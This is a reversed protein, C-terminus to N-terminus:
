RMPSRRLLAVRMGGDADGKRSFVFLDHGGNERIFAILNDRSDSITVSTFFRSEVTGKLDGGRVAEALRKPDLYGIELAGEPTVAYALIMNADESQVNLYGAGDIETPWVVAADWGVKYGDGSTSDTLEVVLIDLGGDPSKRVFLSNADPQDPEISWAGYLREDVTADARESLFTETRVLCGALFAGMVAVVALRALTKCAQMIM